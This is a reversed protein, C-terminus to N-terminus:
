ESKEEVIKPISNFDSIFQERDEKKEIKNGFEKAKAILEDYSKKDGIMAAARALAEYGYATAFPGLKREHCLALCRQGYYVAPIPREVAVYVRALLWESRAWDLSRGIEDNHLCAGHAAHVMIENERETRGEKYLLGFVQDSLKTAMMQHCESDSIQKAM